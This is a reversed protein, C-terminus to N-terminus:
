VKFESIKSKLQNSTASLSRAAEKFEELKAKTNHASESLSTMNGSIINANQAQESVGRALTELKSGLPIVQNIIKSINIEANEIVTHAESAKDCFNGVQRIGSEVSQEMQKLMNKIQLTSVATQDALIKIEDAVLEFGKGYDGSKSAEMAANLSLLNTKESISSIITVIASIGETKQRMIELRSSIVNAADMIQESNEKLLFMDRSGGKAMEISSYIKQASQEADEKLSNASSAINESINAAKFIANAQEYITEEIGSSVMTIKSSNEALSVSSDKLNTILDTFTDILKSTLRLITKSGTRLRSKKLSAINQVQERAANIDGVKLKATFKILMTFPASLRDSIRWALLIIILFILLSTKLINELLESAEQTIANTMDKFDQPYIVVSMIWSWPAFYTYALIIQPDDETEMGMADIMLIGVENKALTKAREFFKEMKIDDATREDEKTSAANFAGGKSVKIVSKGIGGYESVLVHGNKGIKQTQLYDCIFGSFDSTMGYSLMGIINRNADILPEYTTIFSMDATNSFGRYATGSMVADIIPNKNGQNDYAPIYTGIYNAGDKKVVTSVIRLMDGESNIKLFITLEINEVGKASDLITQITNDAHNPANDNDIAPTVVTAGFALKQLTVNYVTDLDTQDKVSASFVESSLNPAGLEYLKAVLIDKAALASKQKSTDIIDCLTYIDSVIQRASQEGIKEFEDNVSELTNSQMELVFLVLLLVPLPAIFVGFIFLASKLSIKM